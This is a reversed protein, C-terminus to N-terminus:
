KTDRNRNGAGVDVTALVVAVGLLVVVVATFNVLLAEAGFKNGVIRAPPAQLFTLKELFGLVATGVALSFLVLGAAAHWPVAARRAETRPLGPFFFALFGALWQVLYLSFVAIGLWSHLSYLHPIAAEAHYKFVAYLGTGGVALGLLHLALHVQKRAEHAAASPLLSPPNRYLLISQASMAIPGLLMLPPHINFILQKNKGSRFAFGGRFSICWLLVLSISALSLVHVALVLAAPRRKTM